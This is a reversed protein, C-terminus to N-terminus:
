QPHRDRATTIRLIVARGVETDTPDLTLHLRRSGNPLPTNALWSRPSIVSRQGGAAVSVIALLAFLGGQSALGLGLWSVRLGARGLPARDDARM